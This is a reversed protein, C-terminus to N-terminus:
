SAPPPVIEIQFLKPWLKGTVFLRNTAADFAIGNLFNVPPQRDSEALLGTLDIWGLVRGDTPSIRVLRDSRFVNAYIENRVFELENLDEVPRDGDHVSLRSLEKFSTADWCRIVSSGDSIYLHTGDNTLGWGQGPYTFQQLLAFTQQDYVFGIQSKWTLQVIRHNLVTLGEGFYEAPLDVRQLVEGTELNVRRLSSQRGTSEYLVGDHIELGQTFATRDHPYTRLVKYGYVPTLAHPQHANEPAASVLPLGSLFALIALLYSSRLVPVM